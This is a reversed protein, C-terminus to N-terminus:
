DGARLVGTGIRGDSFLRFWRCAPGGPDHEFREMFSLANSVSSPCGLWLSKGIQQRWDHHIHGWAVARVKQQSAILQRFGQAELLRYKDIWQSGVAVPQHHLFVLAHPETQTELTQELATLKRKDLQGHGQDPITSDLMHFRWGSQPWGLESVLWDPDLTERMVKLLDHNGPLCLVRTTQRELARAFFRYSAPSSDESIDGTVIILDPDFVPTLELLRELNGLAPLGRYSADETAGLHCDSIQLVRLENM